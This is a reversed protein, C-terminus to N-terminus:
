KPEPTPVISVGVQLRAPNSAPSRRPGSSTSSISEVHTTGGPQTARSSANPLM